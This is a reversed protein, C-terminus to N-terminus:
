GVRLRNEVPMPSFVDRLASAAREAEVLTAVYGSLVLTGGSLVVSAQTADLDAVSSLTEAARRELEADTSPPSAEQRDGDPIEGHFRREKFVM